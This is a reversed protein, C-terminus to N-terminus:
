EGTQFRRIKRVCWVRVVSQQGPGVRRDSIKKDKACVVCRHSPNWSNGGRRSRLEEGDIISTLAWGEGSIADPQTTRRGQVRGATDLGPRGHLCFGTPRQLVLELSYSRVLLTDTYDGLKTVATTNRNV